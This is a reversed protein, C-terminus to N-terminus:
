RTFRPRPANASALFSDIAGLVQAPPDYAKVVNSVQFGGKGDSLGLVLTPTGRVGYSKGLQVDARVGRLSAGERMCADFSRSDLGLQRAYRSYTQPSMDAQNSMILNRMADASNNACRAAAAAEPAKAHSDLPFDHMKYSARGTAVYRRIIEKKLDSNYRASDPCQLDSFEMILPTGVAPESKDASPAEPAPPPPAAQPVGPQAQPSQRPAGSQYTQGPRSGEAPGFLGQSLATVPSLAVLGAVLSLYIATFKM